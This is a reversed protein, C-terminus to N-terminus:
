YFEYSLFKFVSNDKRFHFESIGNLNYNIGLKLSVYRSVVDLM